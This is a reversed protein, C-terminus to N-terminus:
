SREGRRTGLAVALGAAQQLWHEPTLFRTRGEPAQPLPARTAPNASIKDLDLAVNFQKKRANVEKIIKGDSVEGTRDHIYKAVDAKRVAVLKMSGFFPILKTEVIGKQRIYEAQSIKGRAVRSSIRREQLKLFEIAFEEFSAKSPLPRGFKIQEEVKLREAPLATRARQLTYVSFKRKVRRGQADTWSSWM